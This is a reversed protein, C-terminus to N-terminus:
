TDATIRSTSKAVSGPMMMSVQNKPGPVKILTKNPASIAKIVSYATVANLPWFGRM